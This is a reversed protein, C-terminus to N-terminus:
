IYINKTTKFSRNIQHCKNVPIYAKYRIKTLCLAHLFSPIMKRSIEFQFTSINEVYLAQRYQLQTFLCLTSLYELYGFDVVYQIISGM